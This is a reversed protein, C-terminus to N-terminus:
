MGTGVQALHTNHSVSGEFRQYNKGRSGNGVWIEKRSNIELNLLNRDYETEGKILQTWHAELM